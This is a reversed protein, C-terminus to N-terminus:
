LTSLLAEVLVAPGRMPSRKWRLNVAATVVRLEARADHFKRFAEIVQPDAFEVIYFGRQALTLSFGEREALEVFEAVIRRFPWDGGHDVHMTDKTLVEGSVECYPPQTEFWRDRWAAIDSWVATRCAQEITPEKSAMDLAVRYSFDMTSGDPRVIHFGRSRLHGNNKLVTIGTIGGALKNARDHHRDLVAVALDLDAGGLLQGLPATHLV